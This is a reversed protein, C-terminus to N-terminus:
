FDFERCNVVIHVEEAEQKEMDLMEKNGKRNDIVKQTFDALYPDGIQGKGKMKRLKMKLMKLLM